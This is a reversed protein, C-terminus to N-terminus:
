MIFEAHITWIKVCKSTPFKDFFWSGLLTLIIEQDAAPDEEPKQDTKAGAPSGKTDTHDMGPDLSGRTATKIM